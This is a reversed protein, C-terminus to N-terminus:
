REMRSIRTMRPEEQGSGPLGRSRVGKSLGLHGITKKTCNRDHAFCVDFRQLSGQLFVLQVSPEKVTEPTAIGDGFINQPKIVRLECGAAPKIKNRRLSCRLLEDMCNFSSSEVAQGAVLMDVQRPLLQM